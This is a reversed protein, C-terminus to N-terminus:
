KKKRHKGKFLALWIIIAIVIVIYILYNLILDIVRSILSRSIMINFSDTLVHNGLEDSYEVIVQFENLGDVSPTLYFVTEGFNNKKISSTFKRNLGTLTDSLLSITVNEASTSGTNEVEVRLKFQEDVVPNFPVTEIDSFSLEALGTVELGTTFNEFYQVGDYFYSVSIPIVKTGLTVEEGTILNFIVQQEDGVILEGFKRINTDDNLVIGSAEGPNISLEVNRLDHDSSLNLIFSFDNGPNIVGMSDVKEIIIDPEDLSNINFAVKKTIQRSEMVGTTINKSDYHIDFSAVYYGSDIDEPVSIKYVVNQGNSGYVDGVIVYCYDEYTICRKQSNSYTNCDNCLLTSNLPNDLSNLVTKVNYSIDTGLNTLSLSIIGAKGPTMDTVTHNVQLVSTTLASANNVLSILIIALLFGRRKM